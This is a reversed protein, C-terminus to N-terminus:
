GIDRKDHQAAVPGAVDGAVGAVGAVAGYGPWPGTDRGAVMSMDQRSKFGRGRARLRYAGFVAPHQRAQAAASPEPRIAGIRASM